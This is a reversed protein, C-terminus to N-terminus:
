FYKKAEYERKRNVARTCEKCQKQIWHEDFFVFSRFEKCRPCQRKDWQIVIKKQHKRPKELLTEILLRYKSEPMTYKYRHCRNIFQKLTIIRPEKSYLEREYLAVIVM